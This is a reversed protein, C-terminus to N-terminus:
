EWHGSLDFSLQSHHRIALLYVSSKRLLYLVLYDDVSYERVEVKRGVLSRVRLVLADAELSTAKRALLDVGLKPFRVLNPVLEDFLRATLAEFAGAANAAELFTEIEELNHAFNETFRVAVPPRM